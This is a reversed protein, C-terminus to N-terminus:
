GPWPSLGQSGGLIVGTGQCNRPLKSDAEHGLRAQDESGRSGLTVLVGRRLNVQVVVKPQAAPVKNGGDHFM